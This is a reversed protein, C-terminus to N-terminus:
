ETLFKRNDHNETLLNKLEEYGGIHFGDVVVVPYTMASPYNEKLFDRTFDEGLKQESFMINKSNLLSKANNCFKCEPRTYIVVHM